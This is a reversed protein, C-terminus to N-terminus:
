EIRDIKFRKNIQNIVFAVSKHSIFGKHKDSGPHFFGDFRGGIGFPYPTLDGEFAFPQWYGSRGFAHPINHPRTGEELYVVYPTTSANFNIRATNYLTGEHQTIGITQATTNRRLLGTDYPFFSSMVLKDRIEKTITFIDIVSRM